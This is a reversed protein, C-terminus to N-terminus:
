CPEATERESALRVPRDRLDHVEELRAARLQPALDVLVLLHNRFVVHVPLHQGVHGVLLQLPLGAAVRGGGCREEGHRASEQAQPHPGRAAAPGM